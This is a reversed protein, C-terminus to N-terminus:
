DFLIVNCSAYYWDSVGLFDEHLVHKPKLIYLLVNKGDLDSQLRHIIYEGAQAVRHASLYSQKALTHSAAIHHMNTTISVSSNVRM